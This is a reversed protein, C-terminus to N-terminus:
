PRGGVRVLLEANEDEQRVPIRYNDLDLVLSALPHTEIPLPRYTM